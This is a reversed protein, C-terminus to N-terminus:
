EELQREWKTKGFSDTNKVFWYIGDPAFRCLSCLAPKHFLDSMMVFLVEADIDIGVIMFLLRSCALAPFLTGPKSLVMYRVTLAFVSGSPRAGLETVYSAM